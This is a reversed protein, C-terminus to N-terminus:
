ASLEQEICHQIGTGEIFMPHPETVPNVSSDRLTKHYSHVLVAVGSVRNGVYVTLCAESREKGVVVYM